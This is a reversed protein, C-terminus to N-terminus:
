NFLSEAKHRKAETVLASFLRRQRPIYSLYEPHWQVGIMFRHSESEIAQVFEDLDKAVIKLDKGLRDIAQHHLSNIRWHYADLIKGLKGTENLQAKKRPLPTRFNSTQVRYPRIDGHLSGGLVVNLLQMGRCIGMIPLHTKLAHEIMEVEFADRDPDIPSIGNDEGGYLTPDIDNGGGIIIAQFKDPKHQKYNGPTLRVAEAECMRLAIRTAWWAIPFKGNPGTVGIIPRDAM